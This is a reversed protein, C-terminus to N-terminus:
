YFAWSFLSRSNEGMPERVNYNALGVVIVLIGVLVFLSLAYNKLNEVTHKKFLMGFRTINFQTSM